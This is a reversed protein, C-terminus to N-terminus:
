CLNKIKTLLSEVLEADRGMITKRKSHKSIYFTIEAYDRFYNETCLQILYIVDRNFRIDKEQGDYATQSLERILRVFNAKPFITPRPARKREEESMSGKKIITWGKESYTELDRPTAIGKDMKLRAQHELTQNMTTLCKNFVNEGNSSRSKIVQELDGLQVTNRKHTKTVSVVDVILTQLYRFLAQRTPEVIDGKIRDNKSSMTKYVRLLSQKTIEKIKNELLVREKLEKSSSTKKVKSKSTKSVANKSTAPAKKTTKVVKTTTAPKSKTTKVPAKKVTKTAM